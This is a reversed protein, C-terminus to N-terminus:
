VEHYKPQEMYRSCCENLCCGVWINGIDAKENDDLWWCINRDEEGIDHESYDEMEDLETFRYKFSYKDGFHRRLAPCAGHCSEGDILHSDFYTKFGRAEYKRIFPPKVPGPQSDREHGYRVGKLGFTLEPYGVVIADASLSNMLFTSHFRSISAWPHGRLEVVDIYTTIAKGDDSVAHRQLKTISRM